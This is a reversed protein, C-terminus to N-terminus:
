WKSNMTDFILWKRLCRRKSPTLTGSLSVRSANGKGADLAGTIFFCSALSCSALDLVFKTKVLEISNFCARFMRISCVYYYLM